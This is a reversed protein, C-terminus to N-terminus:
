YAQFLQNYLYFPGVKILFVPRFILIEVGMSIKLLCYYPM